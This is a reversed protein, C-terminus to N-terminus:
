KMLSDLIDQFRPAERLFLFRVSVGGCKLYLSSLISLRLSVDM